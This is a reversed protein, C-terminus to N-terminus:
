SAKRALLVWALPTDNGPILLPGAQDVSCNQETISSCISEFQSEDMAAGVMSSMRGIYTDLESQMRDLWSLVEEPDYHQIEGHIRAVDSYLRAVTDDAVNEGYQKMIAEAEQVAPALQSAAEDYPQRDAGKVAEFGTRFMATAGPIFGSDRFRVTAELNASCEQHISGSKSHMLLGLQGNGALLRVAEIIAEPGAYEVGFQSTVLDFTGDPLPITRADSVIGTVSEFRSRINTIAAESVDVCSIELPSDGYVDMAREIVAGNGSAIDLLSPNTYGPKVNKFFDNWFALIAPHNVGGSSFAGIEGTGQWYADWSNAVQSAEMNSETM